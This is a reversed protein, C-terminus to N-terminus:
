ALMSMALAFPVFIAVDLLSSRFGVEPPRMDIVLAMMWVPFFAAVLAGGAAVHWLRVRPVFTAVVVGQILLLLGAIPFFRPGM